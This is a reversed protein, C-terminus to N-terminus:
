FTADLQLQILHRGKDPDYGFVYSYGTQIKLQHGNLYVNFGAVASQGQDQVLKIFAPDTGDFAYMQDYRAVIEVWRHVMQGAQVFWGWGSRSYETGIRDQLAQRYVVEALLSFGGYKFALDAAAHGYDIGGGQLITGFTSKQRNTGQNYAGALGIAMRPRRLRALDGEMDDDFAGWPRVVLRLVYLFGISQTGFANRGEGGGIFLHYALIGRSGFLNQSSFMIGIDRDLTLEQIPQQRDVFQLALERITRARDFPVFYQGIRVNLDRLKNYEIFADLLPSGNGVVQIDNASLGLQINYALEPVLIHGQFWVRAARAAIENTVNNANDIGITDRIQARARVTMSFRNDATTVNFGRGPAASVTAGKNAKREAEAAASVKQAQELKEELARNAKELRELREEVSIPDDGQAAAVGHLCLVLWLLVGTQGARM